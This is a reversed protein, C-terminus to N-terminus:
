ATLLAGLFAAAAAISAAARVHNLPIWRDLYRQWEAAASPSVDVVSGTNVYFTAAANPWRSSTYSTYAYTGASLAGVVGLAALAAVSVRRSM